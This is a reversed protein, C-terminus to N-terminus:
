LRLGSSNPDAIFQRLNDGLIRLPPLGVVEFSSSAITIGAEHIAKLVERSMLNKTERVKWQDAVFRVSHKVWNDTLRFYVRPKMDASNM